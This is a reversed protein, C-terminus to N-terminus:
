ARHDGDGGGAKTTEAGKATARIAAAEETIDIGVPCWTICRGCGVCGSTGFQDHWTSLKHTMWQRYRARTGARVAGGHVESFEMTFCSAWRATRSASSGDLASEEEVGTCFCTPCVMTCNGCSLCRNAVEEWRPHEPNAQLLEPLGDTDLQRTIQEAARARGAAAEAREGPTSARTPLRELMAAGAASGAEVVFVGGAELETLALDFGTRAEPGTGMSTCFCTAAARTCNVAVIFLGARRAAYHPDRYPGDLFVRDQVAIAALDCARLGILAHRTLDAPEAVIRPVGEETEMSWLKQRPPHLIRKWPEPGTTHGFFADGERRLRYHGGSQEEIWGRALDASSAITEHVIAGDRRVPGLVRHGDGALAAILADLGRTDLIVADKGPGHDDSM